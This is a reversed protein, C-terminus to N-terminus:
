ISTIASKLRLHSIRHFVIGRNDLDPAQGVVGAGDVQAPEELVAVYDTPRITHSIRHM